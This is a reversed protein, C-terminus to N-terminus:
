QLAINHLVTCKIFCGGIVSSILPHRLVDTTKFIMNRPLIKLFYVLLLTIIFYEINHCYSIIIEFQWIELLVFHFTDTTIKNIKLPYWNQIHKKKEKKNIIFLYIFLRFSEPWRAPKGWGDKQKENTDNGGHPEQLEVVLLILVAFRLYEM